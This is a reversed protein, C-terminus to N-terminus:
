KVFYIERGPYDFYVKKFKKLFAVGILVGVKSSGFPSLGVINTMTATITPATKMLHEGITLSDISFSYVPYISTKAVTPKISNKQTDDLLKTLSDTPSCSLLLFEYQCGTDFFANASIKNTSSLNLEIQASPLEKSFSVKRNEFGANSYVMKISDNAFEPKFTTSSKILSLYGDKFDLVLICSDFVRGELSQGIVGSIETKSQGDLYKTKPLNDFNIANGWSYLRNLSSDKFIHSGRFFQSSITGHTSFPLLNVATQPSTLNYDRAISSDLLMQPVGTDFTFNLEQNKNTKFQLVIRNDTCTFPVHLITDPPRQDLTSILLFATLFFM